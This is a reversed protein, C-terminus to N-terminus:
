RSTPTSPSPSARTWRSPSHSATSKWRSRGPRRDNMFNAIACERIYRDAITRETSVLKGDEVTGIVETLKEDLAALLPAIHATEFDADYDGDHELEAYKPDDATVRGPRSATRRAPSCGRQQSKSPLGTLRHDDAVFGEITTAAPSSCFPKTRGSGRGQGRSGGQRSVM